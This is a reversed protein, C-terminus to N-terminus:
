PPPAASATASAATPSPALVTVTKTVTLSRVARGDLTQGGAIETCEGKLAEETCALVKVGAGAQVTRAPQGNLRLAATNDHRGVPLRVCTGWRGDEAHVIAEVADRACERLVQVSRVNLSGLTERRGPALTFCRGGLDNQECMRAKVGAGAEVLGIEASAMMQGSRRRQEISERSEFAGGPAVDGWGLVVPSAYSGPGIRQCLRQEHRSHFTVQETGPRCSDRLASWRAIRLLALADTGDSLRPLNGVDRCSARGLPNLTCGLVETFPGVKISMAPKGAHTIADTGALEGPGRLTCPGLGQLAGFLAVQGAAPQCTADAPGAAHVAMAALSTM